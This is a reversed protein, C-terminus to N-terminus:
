GHKRRLNRAADAWADDEDLGAGLLSDFPANVSGALLYVNGGLMPFTWAEPWEKLVRERATTKKTM